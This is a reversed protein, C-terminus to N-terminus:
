GSGAIRLRNKASDLFRMERGSVDDVDKKGVREMRRFM